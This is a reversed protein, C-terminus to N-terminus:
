RIGTTQIGGRDDGPQFFGIMVIHDAGADIHALFAFQVTQFFSGFKGARFFKVDEIHHIFKDVIIDHGANLRVRNVFIFVKETSGHRTRQDGFFQHFHGSFFIGNGDAVACRAFAVVLDAELQADFSESRIEADDGCPTIVVPVHIGAFRFDFVALLVANIKGEGRRVAVAAVAIEPMDAVFTQFQFIGRHSGIVIMKEDQTNRRLFGGIFAFFNRQGKFGTHGHRHVTFFHFGAVDDAFEVGEAAFM